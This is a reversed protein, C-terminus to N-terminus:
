PAHLYALRRVFDPNPLEAKVGPKEPKVDIFGRRSAEEAWRAKVIQVYKRIKYNSTPKGDTIFIIVSGRLDADGFNRRLRAAL